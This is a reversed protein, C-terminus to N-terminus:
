GYHEIIDNIHEIIYDIKKLLKKNSIGIKPHKWNCLVHAFTDAYDEKPHTQAYKSIYEPDDYRYISEEMGNIGSYHSDFDGFLKWSCQYSEVLFIEYFAHGLEHCLSWDKHSPRDYAKKVITGLPSNSLHNLYIINARPDYHNVKWTQRFSVETLLILQHMTENM